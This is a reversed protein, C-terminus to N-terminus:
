SANIPSSLIGAQSPQAAPVPLAPASPQIAAPADFGLREEAKEWSRDMAYAPLFWLPVHGYIPMFQLEARIESAKEVTALYLAAALSTRDAGRYCHILIPGEARSLIAIVDDIQSASLERKASLKYDVLKIGAREAASKEERYWQKDPSSGILNVITRIGYRAHWDAVNAATPRASRYLKGAVVTHFNNTAALKLPYLGAALGLSACVIAAVKWVRM